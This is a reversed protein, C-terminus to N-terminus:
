GDYKENRNETPIMATGYALVEVSGISKGNGKSISATEYKINLVLTAKKEAAQEKMRLLAERRARDLLTEYSTVRGGFFNHLAALFRKFYDVSITVSGLVLQQQFHGAPPTKMAIAPISNLKKERAIISVYHRKEIATGILYAVILLVLIFIFQYAFM